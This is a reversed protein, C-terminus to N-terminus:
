RAQQPLEQGGAPAGYEGGRAEREARKEAHRERIKNLLFTGEAKSIRGAGM